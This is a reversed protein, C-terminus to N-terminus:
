PMKEACLDPYELSPCPLEHDSFSSQAFASPKLESENLSSYLGQLLQALFDSLALYVPHHALAQAFASVEERYLFLLTLVSLVIAWRMVFVIFYCLLLRVSKPTLIIRAGLKKNCGNGGDDGCQLNLNTMWLRSLKWGKVHLIHGSELNDGTYGCEVCKWNNNAREMAKHQKALKQWAPTNHFPKSKFWM